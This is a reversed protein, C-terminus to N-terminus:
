GKFGNFADFIVFDFAPEASAQGKVLDAKLLFWAPDNLKM